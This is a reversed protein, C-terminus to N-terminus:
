VIEENVGMKEKREDKGRLKILKKTM